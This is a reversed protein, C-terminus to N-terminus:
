RGSRRLMASGVLAGVADVVIFSARSAVAFLAAQGPRIQSGLVATFVWERPGLGGPAPIFVFGSVWGLCTAAILTFVGLSLGIARGAAWASAVIFVWAPTYRLIMRISIFFPPVHPATIRGKTLRRVVGLGWGAIKPHLAGVGLPAILLLLLSWGGAFRSGIVGAVSVLLGALFLYMLSLIVSEYIQGRPADQGRISRQRRAIEGRGVVPWIAGPVYKGIEGLYYTGITTSTPLECGCVRMVSRWTYAIWTMAAGAFAVSVALWGYRISTNSDRLETWGSWGTRVLLAVAAAALVVSLARFAKM